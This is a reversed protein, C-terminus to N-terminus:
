IFLKKEIIKKQSLIELEKFFQLFVFCIWMDNFWIEYQFKKCLRCPCTYCKWKKIKIKFEELFAALKYESPLKAWLSPVRYTLKKSKM